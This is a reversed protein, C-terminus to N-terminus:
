EHGDPTDENDTKGLQSLVEVIIRLIKLIFWFDSGLKM